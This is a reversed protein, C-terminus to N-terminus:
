NKEELIGGEEEEVEEKEEEAEEVKRNVEQSGKLGRWEGWGRM